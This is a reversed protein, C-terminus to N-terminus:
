DGTITEENWYVVSLVVNIILLAGGIINPFAIITLMLPLLIRGSTFIEVLILTLPIVGHFLGLILMAFLYVPNHTRFKGTVLWRIFLGRMHAWEAQTEALALGSKNRATRYGPWGILWRANADTQSLDIAMDPHFPPKKHIEM